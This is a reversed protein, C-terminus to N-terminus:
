SYLSYSKLLRSGIGRITRTGYTHTPSNTTLVVVSFRRTGNKFLSGQSVIRGGGPANAFGDKFYITFGKPTSPPLGWRQEKVISRLLWMAYTRHRKPVRQDITFFFRAIGVPTIQSRGWISQTTFRSMGVRHALRILCRRNPGWLQNAPGDASRRIMPGLLQRDHQTLKRNRVDARNLYCVMIMSKLVSASPFYQRAHLGAHLRGEEDIVAVGIRGQRSKAFRNASQIRAPWPFNAVPPATSIM